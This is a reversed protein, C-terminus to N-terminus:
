RVDTYESGPLHNLFTPLDRLIESNNLQSSSIVGEPDVEVCNTSDIDISVVLTPLAPKEEGKLYRKLMNVHCVRIKRHRDPTKIVYDTNNIKREVIYSESFKAAFISSPM